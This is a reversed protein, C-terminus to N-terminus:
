YFTRIFFLGLSHCASVSFQSYKDHPLVCDFCPRQCIPIFSVRGGSEHHFHHPNKRLISSRWFYQMQINEGVYLLFFFRKV